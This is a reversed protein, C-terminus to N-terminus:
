FTSPFASSNNTYLHYMRMLKMVGRQIVGLRLRKAILQFKSGAVDCFKLFAQMEFKYQLFLWFLYRTCVFWLFILSRMALNWEQFWRNIHSTALAQKLLALFRVTHFLQSVCFYLPRCLEWGFSVFNLKFWLEEEQRGPDEGFICSINCCFVLASPPSRAFQRRVGNPCQAM